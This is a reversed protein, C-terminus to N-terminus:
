PGFGEPRAESGTLARESVVRNRGRRKAAYLARDARSIWDDRTDETRLQAIGMSGTLRLSTNQCDVAIQELSSRLREAFSSAQQLSANPLVVFFEEGGYRGAQDYKRLERQLLAGVARLVADGCAHGYTDNIRKFHDIDLMVGCLPTGSRHCREIEVDIANFLSRRNMLGSLGDIRAVRELEKNMDYLERNTREVRNVAQKLGLTHEVIQSSVIEEQKAAHRYFNREHVVFRLEKLRSCALRLRIGLLEPDAPDILDDLGDCLRTSLASMEGAPLLAIVQSPTEATLSRVARLADDATLQSGATLDLLILYGFEPGDADEAESQQACRVAEDVTAVCRLRLGVTSEAREM